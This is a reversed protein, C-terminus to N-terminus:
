SPENIKLAVREQNVSGFQRVLRRISRATEGDRGIIKGMDSKSLSLSLLVGREDIIKNVTFEESVLPGIISKLYDESSIKNM